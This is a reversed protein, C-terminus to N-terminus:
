KFECGGLSSVAVALLVTLIATGRLTSLAWFIAYVPLLLPNLDENKNQSM